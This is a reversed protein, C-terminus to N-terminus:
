KKRAATKGVRAVQKMAKAKTDAEKAMTKAEKKAATMRKKDKKIENAAALSRADEEAQWKRDQATLARAM